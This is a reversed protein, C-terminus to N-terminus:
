ASTLGQIRKELRAVDDRLTDVQACFRQIDAKAAILPQEETWYETFTRAMHDASLTAWQQLGRAASVMRHAALDGVIKSLDEEADWRLHRWLHQITAALATDGEIAVERWAEPDQAALRLAAGPTITVTLNNQIEAPAAMVEGNDLVQLRTELPPTLFRAVKGAHPKLAERAWGNARLLHNLSAASFASLAVIPQPM